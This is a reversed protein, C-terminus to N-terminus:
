GGLPVLEENPSEKARFGIPVPGSGDWPRQHCVQFFQCMGFKGSNCSNEHRVWTTDNAIERATVAAGEMCREVDDKGPRVVEHHIITDPDAEEYAEAMRKDLQADTEGVRGRLASKKGITYIAGNVPYGLRRAAWIYKLIQADTPIATLVDRDLKAYAKHEVIWLGDSRQILGDIKGLYRFGNSNLEFQKEVFVTKCGLGSLKKVHARLLGRAHVRARSENDDLVLGLPNEVKWEDIIKEARSLDGSTLYEGIAAHYLDGVVMGASKNIVGIGNGAATYSLWYKHPCERYTAISSHTVATKQRIRKVRRNSAQQVVIGPQFGGSGVDGAITARGARLVRAPDLGKTNEVLSM